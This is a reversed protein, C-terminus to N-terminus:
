WGRINFSSFEGQFDEWEIQVEQVKAFAPGHRCWAILREVAAREGELVAEVRRDPCNKVWGSVGLRQAEQSTKSRFFVGQVRGSIWLHARLMDM